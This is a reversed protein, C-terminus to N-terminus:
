GSEKPVITASTEGLKLYSTSSGSEETDELASNMTVTLVEEGVKVVYDTLAGKYEKGQIECKIADKFESPDSTLQVENSRIVIKCTDGVKMPSACYCNVNLQDFILVTFYGNQESIVKGNVINSRGVFTAVFESSPQRYISIPDGMQVIKGHNMIVIRNSLMFAEEQDHTVYVTSIGVKSLLNKLEFRTKERIKADLNSLPEDLLLVKPEYVLSRALAVRQQEGGSLQSPYKQIHRTMNVKELARVVKVKIESRPFHRVKLGYAVNDYVRMHPWLAYSQFVLGVDRKEPPVFVRREPSTVLKGDIWIEGSNPKELGAICRLTTTKGCGSPGFLSVVENGVNFSVDHVAAIGKGFSKSLHRVEIIFKSNGQTEQTAIEHQTEEVNSQL